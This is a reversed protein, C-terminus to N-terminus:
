NKPCRGILLCPLTEDWDQDRKNAYRGLVSKLTGNVGEVLCKSQTIPAVKLQKVGCLESFLQSM